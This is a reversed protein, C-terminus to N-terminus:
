VTFVRQNQRKGIRQEGIFPADIDAHASEGATRITATGSKHGLPTDFEIKYTGDIM